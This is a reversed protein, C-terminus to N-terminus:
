TPLFSVANRALQRLRTNEPCAVMGLDSSNIVDSYAEDFWYPEETQVFGCHQCQYYQVNYKGLMTATAFPAAPHSCIKCIM